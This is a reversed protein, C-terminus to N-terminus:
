QVKQNKYSSFGFSSGSVLISSFMRNDKEWISQKKNGGKGPFATAFWRFKLPNTLPKYHRNIDDGCM